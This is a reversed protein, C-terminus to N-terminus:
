GGFLAPKAEFDTNSSPRGKSLRSLAPQKFVRVPQVFHYAPDQLYTLLGSKGHLDSGLAAAVAPM